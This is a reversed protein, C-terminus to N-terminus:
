SAISWGTSGCSGTRPPSRRCSCRRTWATSATTRRSSRRSGTSPTSDRPRTRRPHPPRRPHSRLRPLRRGPVPAVPVRRRRGRRDRRGGRGRRDVPLAAPRPERGPRRRSSDRPARGRAALTRLALAGAARASWCRCWTAPRPMPVPSRRSRASARSSASGSGGRARAASAGRKRDHHGGARDGRRDRAAAGAQRQVRVIPDRLVEVVHALQRDSGRGRHDGTLGGREGLGAVLHAVGLAVGATVLGIVPASGGRPGSPGGRRNTDMDM